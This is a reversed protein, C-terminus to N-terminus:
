ESARAMDFWRERVEGSGGVQHRWGWGWGPMHAAHRGEHGEASEGTRELGVLAHLADHQRGADGLNEARAQVNAFHVLLVLRVQALEPARQLHAGRRGGSWMWVTWPERTPKM